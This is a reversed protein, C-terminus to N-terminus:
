DRFTHVGFSIGIIFKISFSPSVSSKLPEEQNFDVGYRICLEEIGICHEDIELSANSSKSPQASTAVIGLETSTGILEPEKNISGNAPQSITLPSTLTAAIAANSFNEKDETGVEATPINSMPPLVSSTTVSTVSNPDATILHVSSVTTQQQPQDLSIDTM